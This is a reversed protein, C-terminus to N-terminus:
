SAEDRGELLSAAHRIIRTAEDEEGSESVPMELITRSLEELESEEDSSRQSKRLLELRRGRKKEIEPSRASTLSFLESTVLQDLRWSRIVGPDNVIEAQDNSHRVVALNANLSVQAMLPSHAAVIFQVRPFHTTLHERIERQWSPHLHLDIEDVIVIAPEAFPNSSDPNRQFLRWAVDVTWAFMTRYGLSLQRLPVRGYRTRVQVGTKHSEVGPQYPPGLIVIDEPQQVEPLTAALIGKLGELREKAGVNQKLAGYDLQSLLTEADCLPAEVEFLSRTPDTGWMDDLESVPPRRGAGYALVLPEDIATVDIGTPSGDHEVRTIREETRTISLSTTVSQPPDAEHSSLVTASSLHAELRAPALTGSRTLASLVANNEEAALEPEVPSPPAGSDDDPPPNFRPRMRALCQLLTTKGVGNDGVILTWFSPSGEENALKLRQRGGFCRVNEIELGTFYFPGPRNPM